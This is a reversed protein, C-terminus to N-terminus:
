VYVNYVYVPETNSLSSAFTISDNQTGHEYHTHTHPPEMSWIEVMQFNYNHVNFPETIQQEDNEIWEFNSRFFFFVSM